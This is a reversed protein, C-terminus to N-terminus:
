STKLYNNSIAWRKHNVFMRIEVANLPLVGLDREVERDRERGLCGCVYM